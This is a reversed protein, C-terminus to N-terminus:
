SKAGDIDIINQNRKLYNPDNSLNFFLNKKNKIKGRWGMLRLTKISPFSELDFMDIMEIVDDEHCEELELSCYNNYKDYTIMAWYRNGLLIAKRKLYLHQIDQCCMSGIYRYGLYFVRERPLPPYTEKKHPFQAINTM